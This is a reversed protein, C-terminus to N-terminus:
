ASSGPRRAYWLAALDRDLLDSLRAVEPAFEERLRARLAPDMPARPPTQTNVRQLGSVVARALGHLPRPVLRKARGVVDPSRFAEAVQPLRYVRNPNVVDFAPRFGPDVGLFALADAYTRAQDRILDEYVIVKVQDRPFTDFYRQIQGSFSAVARYQYMRFNRGRKPLRRGARRDPEAALAEAFPLDETRNRRRVAHFSYMQEVPERIQAIIRAEPNLRHINTAAVESFLNFVCAEGVATENGAPVFLSLYREWSRIFMRADAPTGSDLDRCMFRPEKVEPMYIDPHRELYTYLFTSACRPAGVMFFNPRRVSALLEYGPEGPAPPTLYPGPAGSRHGRAGAASSAQVALLPAHGTM